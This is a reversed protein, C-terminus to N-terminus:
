NQVELNKIVYDIDSIKLFNKNEKIYDAYDLINCGEPVEIEAEIVASISAKVKVPKEYLYLKNGFLYNYLSDHNNIKTIGLMKREPNIVTGDKEFFLSGLKKPFFTKLRNILLALDIERANEIYEIANSPVLTDDVLRVSLIDKKANPYKKQYNLKEAEYPLLLAFHNKDWVKVSYLEKEKM